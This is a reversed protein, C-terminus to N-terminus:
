ERTKSPKSGPVQSAHFIVSIRVLQIQLLFLRRLDHFLHPCFLPRRKLEKATSRLDGTLHVLMVLLLLLLLLPVLVLLLLLLLLLVLLLM